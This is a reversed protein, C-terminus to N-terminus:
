RDGVHDPLRRHRLAALSRPLGRLGRGWRRFRAALLPLARRPVEPRAFVIDDDTPWVARAVVRPRDRWRSSQWLLLWPYAGQSASAVRANWEGLAPSPSPSVDVGLTRLFDELSGDCGTAAALQALDARERVSLDLSALSDLDATTRAGVTGDRMAHLASILISSLRDPIQVGRHAFTM